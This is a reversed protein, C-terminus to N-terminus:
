IYFMNQVSRLRRRLLAFFQFSVRPAFEVGAESLQELLIGSLVFFVVFQQVGFHAMSILTTIQVVSSAGGFKFGFHVAQLLHSGKAHGVLKHLTTRLVFLWM